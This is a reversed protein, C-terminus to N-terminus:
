EVLKVRAAERRSPFLCCKGRRFRAFLHDVDTAPDAAGRPVQRRLEVALYAADVQRRVIDFHRIHQGFAATQGIPRAELTGVGEIQGETVSQEIDPPALIDGHVDGFLRIEIGLNRTNESGAPPEHRRIDNDSRAAISLAPNRM